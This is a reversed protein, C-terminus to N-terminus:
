ESVGAQSHLDRRNTAPAVCTRVAFSIWDFARYSEETIRGTGVMPWASAQGSLPAYFLAFSQEVVFVIHLLLTIGTFSLKSM